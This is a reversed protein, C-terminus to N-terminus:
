PPIVDAYLDLSRLSHFPTFWVILLLLKVNDLLPDSYRCRRTTRRFVLKYEVEDRGKRERGISIAAGIM